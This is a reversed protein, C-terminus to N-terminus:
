IKFGLARSLSDNHNKRWEDDIFIDDIEVDKEKKLADKVSFAKVYKRVIFLKEPAKM